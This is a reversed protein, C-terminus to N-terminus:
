RAEWLAPFSGPIRASLGRRGTLTSRAIEAGEVGISKPPWIRARTPLRSALRGGARGVGCDM